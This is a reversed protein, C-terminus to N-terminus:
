YNPRQGLPLMYRPDIDRGQEDTFWLIEVGYPLRTEMLEDHDYAWTFHLGYYTVHVRVHHKPATRSAVHFVEAWALNRRENNEYDIRAEELQQALLQQDALTEIFTGNEVPDFAIDFALDMHAGNVVAETEKLVAEVDPNQDYASM